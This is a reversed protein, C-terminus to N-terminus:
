KPAKQRYFLLVMFLLSIRHFIKRKVRYLIHPRVVIRCPLAPFGSRLPYLLRLAISLQLRHHFLYVAHRTMQLRHVRYAHDAIREIRCISKIFFFHLIVVIRERRYLLCLQRILFREQVTRKRSLQFCLVTM